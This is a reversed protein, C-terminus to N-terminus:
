VFPEQAEEVPYIDSYSMPHGNLTAFKDEKDLSPSSEIEPIHYGDLKKELESLEAHIDRRDM